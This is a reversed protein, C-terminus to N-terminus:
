DLHFKWFTFTFMNGADKSEKNHSYPQAGPGAPEGAGTGGGTAISPKRLSQAGRSAAGVGPGKCTSSSGKRKAQLGGM